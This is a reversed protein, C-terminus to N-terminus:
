LIFSFAEQSDMRIFVLLMHVYSHKHEKWYIFWPRSSRSSHCAVGPLGWSYPSPPHQAKTCFFFHSMQNLKQEQEQSAVPHWHVFSQMFMWEMGYAPRAQDGWCGQSNHCMTPAKLFDVCLATFSRKRLVLYSLWTGTDLYMWTPDGGELEIRGGKHLWLHDWPHFARSSLTMRLSFPASPHQSLLFLWKQKYSFPLSHSSLPNHASKTYLVRQQM